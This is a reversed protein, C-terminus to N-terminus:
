RVNNFSVKETIQLCRASGSFPWNATWEQHYINNRLLNKFGKTGHGKFLHLLASWLSQFQSQFKSCFTINNIPQCRTKPAIGISCIITFYCQLNCFDEMKNFNDVYTCTSIRMRRRLCTGLSSMDWTTSIKEFIYKCTKPSSISLCLFQRWLQSLLFLSNSKVKFFEEIWIRFMRFM